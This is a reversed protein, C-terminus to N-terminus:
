LLIYMQIEPLHINRKNKELIGAGFCRSCLEDPCVRLAGMGESVPHYDEGSTASGDKTHVRVISVKSTDGQRIVPIKIIVSQGPEKPESVSFKTEGFKIITESVTPFMPLNTQLPFAKGEMESLKKGGHKHM